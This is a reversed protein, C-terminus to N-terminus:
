WPIQTRDRWFVGTPGDDALDAVLWIPTVAGERPSRSAASGGMRTRVWGPCVANVKVMPSFARALSVTAANLAAKSIAYAAPGSIGDDFAGWGSSVNVIRGWGATQMATGLARALLFPSATNVHLAELLTDPDTGAVDVESLVGANNVLGQIPGHEDLLSAAQAPITRPDSLDLGVGIAGLRAATIEGEERIRAALIVEHGKNLLGEVIAM